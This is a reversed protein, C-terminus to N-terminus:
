RKTISNRRGNKIKSLIEKTLEEKFIRQREMRILIMKIRAEFMSKLLYFILFIIAFMGFLKLILFGIKAIQILGNNACFYISIILSFLVSSYLMAMFFTGSLNYLADLLKRMNNVTDEFTSTKTQKM